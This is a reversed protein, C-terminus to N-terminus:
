VVFSKNLGGCKIVKSLKLVFVFLFIKMDVIVVVNLSYNVNM